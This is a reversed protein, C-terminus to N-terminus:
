GADLSVGLLIHAGVVLAGCGVLGNLARELRPGHRALHANAHGLVTAFALMALVVGFSFAALYLGAGLPDVRRAFPIAAIVPAAGALGHLAGVAYVGGRGLRERVARARAPAGPQADGRAVRPIRPPREVRPRLAARLLWAGLACLVCAVLTEAAAGLLLPFSLGLTALVVGAAIVSAGHGLSWRLGYAWTRVTRPGQRSFSTVTMVHDADCAHVAGLVLGVGLHALPTGAVLSSLDM